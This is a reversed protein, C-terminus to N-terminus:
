ELFINLKNLKSRVLNEKNFRIPINVHKDSMNNIVAFFLRTSSNVTDHEDKKGQEVQNDFTHTM